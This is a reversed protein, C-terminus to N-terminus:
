INSDIFAKFLLFGYISAGFFAGFLSLAYPLKRVWSDPSEAFSERPNEPNYFIRIEKAIPYKRVAEEALFPKDYYNKISKHINEGIYKKGDVEYNYKLDAKYSLYKEISKSGMLRNRKQVEKIDIGLKFYFGEIGPFQEHDADIADIAEVKSHTIKAWTSQFHDVRFFRAILFALALGILLGIGSFILFTNLQFYFNM